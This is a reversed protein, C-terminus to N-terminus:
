ASVEAVSVPRLSELFKRTEIVDYRTDDEQIVLFFRDSSARDFQPVNFVPHYPQPLGNIALMGIVASLSAGLVTCEFTIPFFAPWSNLPRGGINLPYDIVSAYYCLAFGGIGGLLGGVFVIAAMPNSRVGIAEPLGEIPIPTYADMRRFGADYARESAALLAEPTGFEAMLGHSEPEGNTEM